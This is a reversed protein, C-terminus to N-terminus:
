GYDYNKRYAEIRKELSKIKNKIVIRDSKFGRKLSPTTFSDPLDLEMEVDFLLEKQRILEDDVSFFNYRIKM